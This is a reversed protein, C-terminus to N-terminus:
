RVNIMKFWPYYKEIRFGKNQMYTTFSSVKERTYIIPITIELYKISSKEFEKVISKVVDMENGNITISVIVRKHSTFKNNIMKVLSVTSINKMRISKSSTPLYDPISSNAQNNTTYFQINEDLENTSIAGEIVKINTLNNYQAHAKIFDINENSKM